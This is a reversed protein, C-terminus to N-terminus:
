ETQSLIQIVFWENAELDPVLSRLEEKEADGVKNKNKAHAPLDHADPKMFVQGATESTGKKEHIEPVHHRPVHPMKVEDSM